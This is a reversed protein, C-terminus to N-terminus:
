DVAEFFQRLKEEELDLLEFQQKVLEDSINEKKNLSLLLERQEKLLRAMIIRYDKYFVEAREENGDKEM